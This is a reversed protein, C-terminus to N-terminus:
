IGLTAEIKHPQSPITELRLQAIRETVFPQLNSFISHFVIQIPRVHIVM